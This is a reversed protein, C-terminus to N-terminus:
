GRARDELQSHPQSRGEPLAERLRPLCNFLIQHHARYGLPLGVTPFPETAFVAAEQFDVEAGEVIFREGRM